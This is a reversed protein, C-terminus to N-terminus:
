SEGKWRLDQARGETLRRNLHHWPIRWLYDTWDKPRFPSIPAMYPTGFSTLSVLEITVWLATLFIGYVGLIFSAVLMLWGIVRWSALLEYTPVSFLSLATFTMLVIIQASVFGAKVVSTGVVIAGVTGLTSALMTPLRLAAERLIEIVLIMVLVEVFPTFPLGTHSGAVIDFLSPSILDPNVETLAIYLAPLFVGFAWALWRIFRIFSADYWVTSYDASTRYFETLTVPVTIVFPDGPVLLAVKGQQLNFSVYDVRESYRVTPFLAWSRDRILSGIRTANTATDIAVRKLRSKLTDVVATSALGKVYVIHCTVPMRQGVTIAEITLQPTPLRQRIQALKITSTEVFAEQPGRISQETRPVEISRHPPKELDIILAGPQDQQFVVVHGSLYGQVIDSWQLAEHTDLGSWMLPTLPVSQTLLLTLRGTDVLGDLYVLLIPAPEAPIVQTILDPATKQQDSFFHHLTPIDGRSLAEAVVVQQVHPIWHDLYDLTKQARPEWTPRRM